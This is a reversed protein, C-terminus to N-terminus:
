PYPQLGEAKGARGKSCTPRPLSERSRLFRSERMQVFVQNWTDRAWGSRSARHSLCQLWTRPSSLLFARLHTSPRPWVVLPLCRAGEPEQELIHPQGLSLCCPQSPSHGGSVEM